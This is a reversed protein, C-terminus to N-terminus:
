NKHGRGVLRGVLLLRGGDGGVHYSCTSLVIIEESQIDQTEAAFLSRSLCSDLFSEAEEPSTIYQCGAFNWENVDTQICCITEYVRKEVSVCEAGSERGKIVYFIIKRNKQFFDRDTFKHLPNFMTGYMWMNHGYILTCLDGEEWDDEVFLSGSKDQDGDFNRYLYKEGVMVPYDICTGEVKLWGALDNNRSYMELLDIGNQKERLSADEARPVLLYYAAATTVILLMMVAIGRKLM